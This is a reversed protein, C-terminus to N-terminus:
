TTGTRKSFLISINRRPKKIERNARNRFLNYPIKVNENDPQGKKRYFLKNRLDIIKTTHLTMWPKSKLKVEIKALKKM